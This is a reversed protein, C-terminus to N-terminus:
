AAESRKKLAQIVAVAQGQMDPDLSEVLAQLENKSGPPRMILDAPSTTLADALAELVPQTYAQTGREIGQVQQNFLMPDTKGQAALVQALTQYAQNGSGASADLLQQLKFKKKNRGFGVTGLTNQDPGGQRDPPGTKKETAKEISRRGGESLPDLVHITDRWGFGAERSGGGSDMTGGGSDMGVMGGGGYPNGGNAYKTQIGALVDALSRTGPQQQMYAM